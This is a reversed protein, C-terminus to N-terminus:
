FNISAGLALTKIEDEPTGTGDTFTEVNYDLVLKLNDNISYFVAGIITEDEQSLLTDYETKGYSAVLRFKDITYSGQVLYGTSDTNANAGGGVAGLVGLGEGTFGSATFSAGAFKGNFGYSVGNSDVDGAASKSTQTLGGLWATM